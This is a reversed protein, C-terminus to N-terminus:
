ADLHTTIPHCAALRDLLPAPHRRRARQISVSFGGRLPCLLFSAHVTWFAARGDLRLLGSRGRSPPVPECRRFPARDHAADPPLPDPARLALLAAWLGRLPCLWSSVFHLSVCDLVPSVVCGSHELLMLAQHGLILSLGDCFRSESVFHSRSQRAVSFVSLGTAVIAVRDHRRFSPPLYGRSAGV